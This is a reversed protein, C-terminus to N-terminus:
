SPEPSDAQAKDGLRALIAMLEARLLEADECAMNAPPSFDKVREEADQLLGPTVRM